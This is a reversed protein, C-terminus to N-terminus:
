VNAASTYSSSLVYMSASSHANTPNASSLQFVIMQLASQPFQRLSFCRLTPPQASADEGITCSPEVFAKMGFDQHKWIGTYYVDVDWLM